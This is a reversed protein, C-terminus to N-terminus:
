TKTLIQVDNIGIKMEIFINNFPQNPDVTPQESYVETTDVGEAPFVLISDGVNTGQLNNPVLIPDGNYTLFEFTLKTIKPKTDDRFTIVSKAELMLNYGQIGLNYLVIDTQQNITSSCYYQYPMILEKIRLIIFRQNVINETLLRVPLMVQRFFIYNAEDVKIPFSIERSGALPTFEIQFQFPNPYDNFNRYTTDIYFTYEKNERDNVYLGRDYVIEQDDPYFAHHLNGDLLNNNM